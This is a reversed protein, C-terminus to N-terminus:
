FEEEDGADDDEPVFGDSEDSAVYGDDEAGFGMQEADPGGSGEVLKLIQAGICRLSLGFQKTSEMYYPFVEVNVKGESGTWISPSGTIPQAASDFLRPAQDWSKTKTVVKAKLKFKFIVRGTEEGEDDLESEYIDARGAKKLKAKTLEDPNEEIYEELLRDLEACFKDTIKVGEELAFKTHYEGDPKVFKTDPSTLHPYILVGRPTTLTPYKNAAM